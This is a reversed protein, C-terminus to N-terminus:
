LKTAPSGTRKEKGGEHWIVRLIATRNDLLLWILFVLATAPITFAWYVWFQKTIVNEGQWDLSPIAFLAAIFTGPLFAMTMIAVTKMSSSDRKAAEAIQRSSEALETNVSADEHTMLTFLQIETLQFTLFM